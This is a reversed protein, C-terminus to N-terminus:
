ERGTDTPLDTFFLERRVASCIANLSDAIVSHCPRCYIPSSFSLSSLLNEILQRDDTIKPDLCADLARHLVLCINRRVLNVDSARVRKDNIDSVVGRVINGVFPPFQKLKESLEKM